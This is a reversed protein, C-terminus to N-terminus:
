PFSMKKGLCFDPNKSMESIEVIESFAHTDEIKASRKGTASIACKNKFLKKSLKKKLTLIQTGFIRTPPSYFLTDDHLISVNQFDCKKVIKSHNQFIYTKTAGMEISSDASPHAM